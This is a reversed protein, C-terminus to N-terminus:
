EVTYTKGNEIPLGDKGQAPYQNSGDNFMIVPNNLDSPITYSYTGDGNDTMAIGPWAANNKATAPEYVYANITDGWKDPKQFTVVVEDKKDSSEDKSSEEASSEAESSEEASSEPESSEEVSSEPESSEEVSSEPESSEEVSSEPESSEEVSSEPESSEEVSSEAVSSEAAAQSPEGNLYVTKGKCGSVSVVAVSLVLAMLIATVKRKNM